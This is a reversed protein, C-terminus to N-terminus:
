RIFTEPYRASTYLSAVPYTALAGKGNFEFTALKIDFIVPLTSKPKRSDGEFRVTHNLFYLHTTHPIQTQHVLTRSFYPFKIDSPLHKNQPILATVVTFIM